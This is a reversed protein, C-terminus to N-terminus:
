VDLRMESAEEFKLRGGSPITRTRASSESDTRCVRVYYDGSRMEGQHSVVDDPETVASLPESFVCARAVSLKLVGVRGKEGRTVTGLETKTDTLSLDGDQPSFSEERKKVEYDEDVPAMAELFKSVTLKNQIAKGVIEIAKSSGCPIQVDLHVRCDGCCDLGCVECGFSAKGWGFLSSSCQACTAPKWFKKVRLLHHKSAPVLDNDVDIETKAALLDTAADVKDKSLDPSCLELNASDEVEQFDNIQGLSIFSSGLSQDDPVFVAEIEIMSRQDEGFVDGDNTTKVDPMEALFWQRIRESPRKMLADCPLTLSCMAFELLKLPRLMLQIHLTPIPTAESAYAHVLSLAAATYAENDDWSACVGHDVASDEQELLFTTRSGTRARGKWPLLSVVAQVTSGIPCPLRQARLVRLHFAGYCNLPRRSVTTPDIEWTTLFNNGEFQSSPTLHKQSTRKSSGNVILKPSSTGVAKPDFSLKSDLMGQNSKIDFSSESIDHMPPFQAIRKTPLACKTAGNTMEIEGSSSHSSDNVLTGYGNVANAAKFIHQGTTVSKDLGKHPSTPSRSIQVPETTLVLSKGHQHDKCVNGSETKGRKTDEVIARLEEIESDLTKGEEDGFDPHMNNGHAGNNASALEQREEDLFNAGVISASEEIAVKSPCETELLEDDDTLGGDNRSTPWSWSSSAVSVNASAEGGHLPPLRLPATTQIPQKNSQIPTAAEKMYANAGAVFAEEDHIGQTPVHEAETTTSTALSRLSQLPSSHVTTTTHAPPPHSPCSNSMLSLDPSHQAPKMIAAAKPSKVTTFDPSVMDEHRQPPSSASSTSIPSLGSPPQRTTEAERQEIKESYIPEFNTITEVCCTARAIRSSEITADVSAADVNSSPMDNIQQADSCPFAEAYLTANYQDESVDTQIRVDLKSGPVQSPKELDAASQKALNLAGASKEASPLNDGDHHSHEESQSEEEDSSSVANKVNKVLRLRINGPRVAGKPGNKSEHQQAQQLRTNNLSETLPKLLRGKQEDIEKKESKESEAEDDEVEIGSNDDNHTSEEEDSWTDSAGLRETYQTTDDGDVLGRELISDISNLWNMGQFHNTLGV